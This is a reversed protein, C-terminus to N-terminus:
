LPHVASTAASRLSVLVSQLMPFEGGLRESQFLLDAGEGSHGALRHRRDFLAIRCPETLRVPEDITRLAFASRRAKLQTPLSPPVAADAVIHEFGFHIRQGDSSMRLRRPRGNAGRSTAIGRGHLAAAQAEATVPAVAAAFTDAGATRIANVTDRAEALRPNGLAQGRAKAAALAAKTRQSIVAPEKEALAAYLHLVFPEV